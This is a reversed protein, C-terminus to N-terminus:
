GLIPIAAISLHEQGAGKQTVEEMIFELLTTKGSKKRGVINLICPLFAKM